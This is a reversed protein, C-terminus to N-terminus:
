FFLRVRDQGAQNYKKGPIRELNVTRRLIETRALTTTMMSELLTMMVSVKLLFRRRGERMTEEIPIFLCMVDDVIPVWNRTVHCAVNLRKKEKRWGQSKWFAKSWINRQVIEENKTGKVGELLIKSNRAVDCISGTLPYFVMWLIYMQSQSGGGVGWKKQVKKGWHYVCKKKNWFKLKGLSLKGNAGWQHDMCKTIYLM